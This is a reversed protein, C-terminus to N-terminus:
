LSSIIKDLDEYSNIQKDIVKLVFKVTNGSAASKVTKGFDESNLIAVRNGPLVAVLKNKLQRSFYMENHSSQKVVVDDNGTIHFLPLNQTDISKGNDIVEFDAIIPVAEPRHYIRDYNMLGLESVNTTRHIKNEGNNSITMTNYKQLADAYDKGTFVPAIILENKMKGTMFTFKYKGKKGSPLLEPSTIMKKLIEKVDSYNKDGAYKWLIRKYISLEPIKQYPIAFDIILDKAPDSKVPKLLEFNLKSTRNESDTESQSQGAYKWNNGSYSYFGYNGGSNSVYSVDISKGKKIFVPKGGSTASMEFMGGTQFDYSVGASDYKMDIQNIIIDSATRIEKYKLLIIGSIDKGNEDVFTGSPISIKTGSEATFQNNEDSKFTYRTEKPLIGPMLPLNKGVSNESIMSDKNNKKDATKQNCSNLVPIGFFIVILFLKTKM